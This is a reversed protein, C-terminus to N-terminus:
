GGLQTSSRGARAAHQQRTIVFSLPESASPSHGHGRAVVRVTADGALRFTHTISYEGEPGTEGFAITRWAGPKGERERQLAIRTHAGPSVTGTFTVTNTAISSADANHGVILLDSGSPPGSITVLPALEVRARASRAGLASAYLTSNATLPETTVQFAGEADTTASGCVSFGPTGAAHCYISVSQEGDEGAGSCSLSGSLAVGEGGPAQGAPVVLTITCVGVPGPAVESQGRLHSRQALAGAPLLLAGATALVLAGLLWASLRSRLPDIPLIRISM